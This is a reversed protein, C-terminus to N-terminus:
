SAAAAATPADPPLVRGAARAPRRGREDPRAAAAFRGSAPGDRLRHRHHRVEAARRHLGRSAALHLYTFLVQDRRMRHYEEEVPEKVKLVLEAEAWVDDATPVIRAGAAVFEEDPILSGAGAGQEILVEHGHRVFEHVGAPTIAVRYEHNKVEKPVGVKM